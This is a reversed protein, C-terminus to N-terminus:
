AEGTVLGFAIVGAFVLLTLGLLNVQSDIQWGYYAAILMITGGIWTVPAVRWRRSYQYFGSGLLIAAGALPPAWNPVATGAPLMYIVAFVVVLLAWTAREIQAEAYTKRTTTSTSKRRTSTKRRGAM